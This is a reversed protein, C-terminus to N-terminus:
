RIWEVEINGFAANVRVDLKVAAQDYDPTYYASGRKTLGDLTLAALFRDVDVRVGTGEPVRLRVEGLGVSADVRMEARAPWDGSFDLVLEGVAGKVTIARCRSNGLGEAVFAAAGVELTLEECAGRNPAHFGITTESAGTRVRASRLTLDGLEVDAEVAGFSLDLDLPVERGLGVDLRQRNDRLHGINGGRQRGEVAIRLTGDEPDYSVEPDFHEDLYTLGVRYLQGGDAPALRFRGVGFTVEVELPKDRDLRRSEVLTQYTQAGAAVPALGVLALALGALRPTAITM